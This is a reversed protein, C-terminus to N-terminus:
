ECKQLLISGASYGAGFASLVGWSGPKLDEQFESFALIVGAAGTNAYKHLVLPLEESSPDRGLIKKALLLNMKSNAQHLWIRRVEEPAVSCSALQKLIMESVLPVIEKFVARGQQHFLNREAWPDNQDTAHRLFGGDNRINNSFRTVLQIDIVAFRHEAKATHARELYLATAADGFIFHSDRDRFNLHGTYFEPTVILVGNLGHQSQLSNAALQIAFPVSSCAVNMDFAFGKAGLAQQIEIGVGPYPREFNSCAAIVLGVDRATKGANQLAKQAAVLGMEAQYGLDEEEREQLKPAMRTTDLIGIKDVVHRNQIGSAGEIFAASSPRLAPLGEAIEAAHRANYHGVFENYSAVLEENSIVQPPM